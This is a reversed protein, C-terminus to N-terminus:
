RPRDAPASVAPAERPLRLTFNSGGRPQSTAWISGRNLEVLEKCLILGMGHGEESETGPCSFHTDIRFLRSLQEANMGVGTDAVTLTQWGADEAATLVVAGGRPTFKVANSLLNRLVTALMNEDAWAVADAPVRSAVGIGKGAAVPELMAVIGECLESLVVRSANVELRGSQARAWQLVCELLEASHSAGDRILGAMERARGPELEHFRRYLLESLNVIGGIPNRLDHALISFFKDKSLNAKRLEMESAELRQKSRRLEAILTVRGRVKSAFLARYCLFFAAIKLYHGILNQYGYASSYLTFVLESAITLGFAAVLYRQEVRTLFSPGRVTLVICLAFVGSIVYESAKKFPTVGTGEVLCRPFVNWAYISLMAVLAAGGFFLFVFVVSAGRRSRWPLLFVLTAAAQLARAAVWLRTANDQNNALAAMGEYSLFHFTDLIAVFLYGIGLLLFPRAEPQERSSWSIMFIAGGVVVSFVEVLSHFLLYSFQSSLWLAAGIALAVAAGRSARLWSPLPQRPVALTTVDYGPSPPM